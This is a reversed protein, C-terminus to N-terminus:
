RLLIMKKTNIFDGAELRYFYIGSSLNNKLIQIKHEGANLEENHYVSLVQQGLVNFIKLNVKIREPLVFKIVTGSNFPNPYNQQLEYTLSSQNHQDDIGVTWGIDSLMQSIEPNLMFRNWCLASRYNEMMIVMPGQDIGIYSTAYWNQGLNFADRFGFEGWLDSGLEYYFHKLTAISQQPAYPMASIAATPSITGNDNNYPEHASYGGPEDSATLGWVLSDYGVHSLPNDICYEWHILSINRNNEFYNCFQDSKNRPDFGLFSYHTFFLPGGYAPGVWQMLGYYTNGNAYNAPSAWGDYYLSAPVGHTPSAIALLYVIMAENFGVVPMNMAWNYNPSWHWYLVNSSTTRRYWDWEVEEWMQTALVRIENEAANNLDFYQKITLVGQILYATEVLDGGDDYQSFPITVGTTGNIWHSWAGHYKSCDNQLFRLIKLIRAAASDRSIFGRESGVMISMLGFGTAGTACTERNGAGNRERALGSVPHGYDYFYRFMAEQLSSLLQDETMAYSTSFVTDSAPSEEYNQNAATVYYYYTQNNQGFFDSFLHTEHFTPNLKTYPGPESQSRYIFYGALNTDTDVTWRLDIRSDYGTAIIGQPRQPIGPGTGGTRIARIEDLWALHNAGDAVKQFHFITKIRTFDCNQTGPAFANIPVTVRQWSNSDNDVGNFYDGIWVRTSKNNQLDELGLDPLDAQSIAQPSNIWYELSDYQTLDRGPWGIGAVAIGWDGGSASTWHLRLSNAGQYKHLTDVPFKDHGLGVLELESPANIYGWSPDYFTQDPSDGFFVVYSQGFGGVIWVLMFMLIIAPKM